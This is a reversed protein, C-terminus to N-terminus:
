CIEINNEKTLLLFCIYLIPGCFINVFHFFYIFKQNIISSILLIIIIFTIEM